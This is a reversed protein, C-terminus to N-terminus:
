ELDYFLSSDTSIASYSKTYLYDHNGAFYYEECLMLM